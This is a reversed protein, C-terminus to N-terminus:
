LDKAEINEIKDQLIFRVGEGIAMPSQYFNDPLDDISKQLISIYYQESENEISYVFIVINNKKELNKLESSTLPSDISNIKLGSINEIKEKLEQEEVPGLLKFVFEEHPDEAEKIARAIRGKMRDYSFVKGQPKSNPDIVGIPFIPSRIDCSRERNDEPISEMKELIDILSFKIQRM